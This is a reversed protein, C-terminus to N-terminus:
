QPVEADTSKCSVVRDILGALKAALKERTFTAVYDTDPALEELSDTEWMDYFKKLNAAIGPIDMYDAVLGTKARLVTQAAIGQPPVIALIPKGSGLYEFIKGTFVSDTNQGSPIYLLLADAALMESLAQKQSVFGHFNVLSRIRPDSQFKGLVFSKTNKGFIDV